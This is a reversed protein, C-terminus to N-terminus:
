YSVKREFIEDNHYELFEQGPYFREPTDIEQGDCEVVFAARESSHAVEILRRSVKVIGTPLVTMLGLDFAKHHLVNMCLGNRPDLRGQINESWPIIHCANLLSRMELGTVCCRNRYASFVMRRFFDSNTRTKIKRDREEGEPFDTLDQEISAREEVTHGGLSSVAVESEFIIDEPSILYEEWIQKDLKTVHALGKQHVAPDQNALNCMKMSVSSPTRQMRIALEIIDPNNKDLSGFPIHWYHNFVILTEERTWNKVQRAM